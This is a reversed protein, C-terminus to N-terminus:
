EFQPKYSLLEKVYSLYLPSTPSSSKSRKRKRNKAYEREREKETQIILKLAQKDLNISKKGTRKQKKGIGYSISKNIFSGLVKVTEPDLETDLTTKKVKVLAPIEKPKREKEPIYSTRSVSSRASSRSSRRSSARSSSRSKKRSSKSSSSSTSRSTSRSSSPSAPPKDIQIGKGKRTVENLTKSLQESLAMREARSLYRTKTGKKLDELKREVSYLSSTIPEKKSVGLFQEDKQLQRKLQKIYDSRLKSLSKQQKSRKSKTMLNLSELKKAISSVEKKSELAKITDLLEKDNFMSVDKISRSSSKKKIPPPIRLIDETLEKIETQTLEQKSKSSKSGKRRRKFTSKEKKPIGKLYYDLYEEPLYDINTDKILGSDIAEKIEKEYPEEKLYRKYDDDFLKKIIDKINAKGELLNSTVVRKRLLKEIKFKRKHQEQKLSEIEKPNNNKKRELKKIEEQTSGYKLVEKFFKDIQKVLEKKIDENETFNIFKQIDYQTIKFDKIMEIVQKVPTNDKLRRNDYIEKAAKLIGTTKRTDMIREIATALPNPIYRKFSALDSESIDGRKIREIIYEHSLNGGEKKVTAKFNALFQKKEDM